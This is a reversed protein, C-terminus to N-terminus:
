DISDPIKKKNNCSSHIVVCRLIEKSINKLHEIFNEKWSVIWRMNLKKEEVDATKMCDTSEDLM